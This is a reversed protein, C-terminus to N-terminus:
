HRTLLHCYHHQQEDNDNHEAYSKLERKAKKDKAGGAVLLCRGKLATGAFSSSANAETPQEGKAKLM